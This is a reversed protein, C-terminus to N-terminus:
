RASSIERQLETNTVLLLILHDAEVDSLSVHKADILTAIGKKGRIKITNPQIQKKEKIILQLLYHM